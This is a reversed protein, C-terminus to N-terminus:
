VSYLPDEREHASREGSSMKRVALEFALRRAILSLRGISRVPRPQSPRMRADRMPNREHVRKDFRSVGHRTEKNISRRDADRQQSTVPVCGRSFFPAADTERVSKCSFPQEIVQNHTLAPPRM